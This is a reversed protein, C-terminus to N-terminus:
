AAAHARRVRSRRWLLLCATGLAGAGLLGVGILPLPPGSASALGSNGTNIQRPTGGTGPNPVQQALWILTGDDAKGALYLVTASRPAVPVGQVPLLAAGTPSILSLQHTGPSVQRVAQGANALAPAFMAGDLLTRVHPGAAVNRTVVASGSTPWTTDDYVKALPQGASDLGVAVSVRTGARLAISGSVAPASTAPSGTPRVEFRHLGAPLSLPETIREPHFETLVAKGDVSVDAIVGRLGHVLTVTGTRPAAAAPAAEAPAALGAAAVTVAVAGLAALVRRVRPRGNRSMISCDM